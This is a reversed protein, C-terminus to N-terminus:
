ITVELTSNSGPVIHALGLPTADPDQLARDITQPTKGQNNVPIEHVMFVLFMTM